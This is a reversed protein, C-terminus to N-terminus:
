GETGGEVRYLGAEDKTVLVPTRGAKDKASLGRESLLVAIIREADDGKLDQAAAVLSTLSVGIQDLELHHEIHRFLLDPTKQTKLLAITEPDLKLRAGIADILKEDDPNATLKVMITKTAAAFEAFTEYSSRKLGFVEGLQEVRRMLLKEGTVRNASFLPENLTARDAAGIGPGRPVTGLLTAVTPNRPDIGRAVLTPLTAQPRSSAERTATQRLMQLAAVGITPVIQMAREAAKPVPGYDPGLFGPSVRGGHTLLM